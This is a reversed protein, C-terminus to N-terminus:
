QGGLGKTLIEGTWFGKLVCVVCIELNVKGFKGENRVNWQVTAALNYWKGNVM